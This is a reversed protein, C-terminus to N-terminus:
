KIPLRNKQGIIVSAGDAGAAIIKHSHKTMKTVVTDINTDITEEFNHDFLSLM